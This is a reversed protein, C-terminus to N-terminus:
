GVPPDIALPSKWRRSASKVPQSPNPESARPKPESKRTKPPQKRMNIASADITNKLHVAYHKEIMEVSTRCNKAIQYIDAGQMLRMSIYTHRLSYPARRNGERDLELKEQKLIKRWLWRPFIPFLPDTPDPNERKKMRWFPYAAAPMSKCYGTGRKGRVAIVLIREGTSEDLEVTVDRYQLKLAEDSRLGTNAMFIIYDYLREATARGRAFEPDESRAKVAECLQRYEEPSFWARHEVKTSARYPPSLNPVNDIWGHRHATKLIQRLTVIEQHLTNRAPRKWERTGVRWGNKRREPEVPESPPTPKTLRQMRYAQVTGSTIEQLTMKGFFPMLHIAVRRKHGQVYTPNREGETIIEYEELFKDAAQTFPTGKAAFGGGWRNKGQLELYWDEAIEKARALSDTRTSIRHQRGGVSGNAHWSPSDKRRYVHIKGGLIHHSSSM